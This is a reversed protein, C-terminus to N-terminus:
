GGTSWRGFGVAAPSCGGLVSSTEGLRRAKRSSSILSCTSSNQPFTCRAIQYLRASSSCCYRPANNSPYCGLLYDMAPGNRRKSAGADHTASRDTATERSHCPSGETSFRIAKPVSRTRGRTRPQKFRAAATTTSRDLGYPSPLAPAAAALDWRPDLECFSDRGRRPMAMPLVVQEKDCSVVGRGGDGLGIRTSKQLIELIGGYAKRIDAVEQDKLM